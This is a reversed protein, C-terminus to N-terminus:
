PHIAADRLLDRPGVGLQDRVVRHFQAYSGFGSDLAAQLLNVSGREILDLVRELRLRSRYRTLPVGLQEKFLRSLRERSVGCRLALEAGNLTPDERLKRIAQEIAPHVQTISTAIPSEQVAEWCALLLAALSANVVVVDKALACSRCLGDLARARLPALLRATDIAPDDEALWQRPGKAYSRVLHQAFVLIWIQADPSEEILIHEQEPFLAFVTNRRLVVQRDGVLYTCQGRMVLNFELEEHHHVHIRPRCGTRLFAFGHLGRPYTLIDKVVVCFSLKRATGRFAPDTSSRQRYCGRGPV